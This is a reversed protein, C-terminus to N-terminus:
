PKNPTGKYEITIATRGNATRLKKVYLGTFHTDHYENAFEAVLLSGGWGGGYTPLHLSVCTESTNNKCGIVSLFAYAGGSVHPPVIVTALGKDNLKTIRKLEYEKVSPSYLEYEDKNLWGQYYYQPATLFRSSRNSMISNTDGYGKLQPKGNPYTYLGTHQLKVLHGVEHTATMAQASKVHAFGGGAHPGTCEQPVVYMDAKHAAKVMSSM